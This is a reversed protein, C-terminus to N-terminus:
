DMLIQSTLWYNALLTRWYHEGLDLKGITNALLTTGFRTNALLTTGFRLKTHGLDIKLTLHCRIRRNRDDKQGCACYHETNKHGLDIKLARHCRFRRNRDDKQGFVTTNPTKSDWISKLLETAGLVDIETMKRGGFAVLLLTRHKQTAFRDEFNQTVSNPSKPARETHASHQGVCRHMTHATKLPHTLAQTGPCTSCWAGASAGTRRRRRLQHHGM